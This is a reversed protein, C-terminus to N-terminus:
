FIIKLKINIISILKSNSFVLNKRIESENMEVINHLSDRYRFDTCQTFVSLVKFKNLM